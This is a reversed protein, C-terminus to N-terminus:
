IRERVYLKNQSKLKAAASETPAASAEYAAHLRAHVDEVRADKPHSM